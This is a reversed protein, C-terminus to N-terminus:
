GFDVPWMSLAITRGYRLSSNSFALSSSTGTFLTRAGCPNEESMERSGRGGPPIPTGLRPRPRSGRKGIHRYYSCHVCQIWGVLIHRHFDHGRAVGLVM